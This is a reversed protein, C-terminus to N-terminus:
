KSGIYHPPYKEGDKDRCNNDISRHYAASARVTELQLNILM